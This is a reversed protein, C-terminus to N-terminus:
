VVKWTNGNKTYHHDVELNPDYFIKSKNAIIDNAWYRDEKGVIKENFPYEELDSKKFVSFANHFFYTKELDSYMNVVEKEGFHSWVYHRKVRKGNWIPNQKGFIASYVNLNEIVKDVDFKKIVCHASIILIYDNSSNKVGLNLAKGPTYNTMEVVKLDTYSNIKDLKLDTDRKFHASIELSQDKSGDNIIIIEPQHIFDLLSQITHGIWREEDKCRIIVSIKKKDGNSM